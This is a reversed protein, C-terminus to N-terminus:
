IIEVKFGLAHEIQELTMKKRPAACPVYFYEDCYWSQKNDILWYPTARHKSRIFGLLDYEDGDMNKVVIPRDLVFPNRRSIKLGYSGDLLRVPDGFTEVSDSVRQVNQQRKESEALRSIISDLSVIFDSEM